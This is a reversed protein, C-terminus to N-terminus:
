RMEVTVKFFNYDAEAGPKVETWGADMLNKKGWTTYKRLAKRADDLEPSYSVKVKGDVITISATFVDTEDTPDTGAVYDQWVFMPNGAGDKKGTQMALAKTFDNGFKEAFKPYEGAWSEPVSVVGGKVETIINVFGRDDSAPIAFEPQVSRLVYSVVINTVTLVHSQEDAPQKEPKFSETNAFRYKEIIQSWEMAYRENYRIKQASNNAFAREVNKPPPGYFTVCQLASCLAFTVYAFEEMEFIRVSEPIEISVLSSCSEFAHAGIVELMRPLEVKTLHECNAFAGSSLHTWNNPIIVQEVGSSGLAGASMHVCSAPLSISKGCDGSVGLLWGDSLVIGDPQDLLIPTDSFCNLGISDVSKPISCGKLSSCNKFASSGIKILGIPLAVSQLSTCGYFLGSPIEKVGVPVSVSVLGSCGEFASMGIMSLGLPLDLSSLAKCNKFATDYITHLGLPFIVNSLSSCGEFASTGVTLVGIQLEVNTLKACHYFARYGISRISSPVLVGTLDQCYSFASAGISTVPCGGLTRPITIKGSCPDCETVSAVRVDGDWTLKYSWTIDDIVESDAFLVSPLLMVIGIVKNMSLKEM